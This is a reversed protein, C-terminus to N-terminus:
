LRYMKAKNRVAIYAGAAGVVMIGLAVYPLTAGTQKNDTPEDKQPPVVTTQTEGRSLIIKCDDTGSPRYSFTFLDGDGTVGISELKVTWVNGAESPSGAVSWESGPATEIGVVQAGGQETITITVESMAEDLIQYSATCNIIGNSDAESCKYDLAFSQAAKVNLPLFVVLAMFLLSLYKKM